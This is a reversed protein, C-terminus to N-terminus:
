GMVGIRKTVDELLRQNEREIIILRAIQPDRVLQERKAAAALGPIGFRSVSHEMFQTPRLAAAGGEGAIASLRGPVNLMVLFEDMLLGWRAWARASRKGAGIWRKLQAELIDLAFVKEGQEVTARLAAAIRDGLLRQWPLKEFATGLERAALRQAEAMELMYLRSELHPLELRRIERQRAKMRTPLPMEAGTLKSIGALVDEFTDILALHFKKWIVILRKIGLEWLNLIGLIFGKLEPLWKTALNERFNVALDTIRKSLFEVAPGLELALVDVIGRLSRRMDIFADNARQVRDLDMRTVHGSLRVSEAIIARIQAPMMDLLNQIEKTGRKGFIQATLWLRETETPIQQLADAVKIFMELPTLKMLEKAELNLIKLGRIAVGFGAAVDGINSVMLLMAKRMGEISGGTLEAARQLGRLSDVAIDTRQAAKALEDLRLFGQKLVVMLGGVALASMALGLKAVRKATKMVSTGFKKLRKTAKDLGKTFKDTRAVISVALSAFSRAM